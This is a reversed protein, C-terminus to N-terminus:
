IVASHISEIQREERSHRPDIPLRIEEPGDIQYRVGLWNVHRTTIAWLMSTLFLIETCFYGWQDPLPNPPIERGARRLTNRVSQDLHSVEFRMIHRGLPLVAMLALFATLDAQLLSNVLLIGHYIRLITGATILFVIFYWDPQYLRFLLTQRNIFQICPLLSISEENVVTAETVCALKLGSRKLYRNTYVDEGFTRSWEQTLGSSLVSRRLVMSGGWPTGSRFLTAAAYHNWFCRLRAGFGDVRPAYWRVGTTGGVDPDALPIVLSRLWTPHTVADADVFAVVECDPPLNDIAQLLASNKLSCTPLRRRLTSVHISQQGYEARIKDITNWVPDRDSDVVLHITFDPYEQQILSSLCQYVVPGDGRLALVVAAKPWQRGVPWQPSPQLYHERLWRIRSGQYLAFLAMGLM